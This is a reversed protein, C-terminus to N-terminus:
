NCLKVTFSSIFKKLRILGHNSILQWFLSLAVTEFGLFKGWSFLVETLIPILLQMVRYGVVAPRPRSKKLLTFNKKRRLREFEQM